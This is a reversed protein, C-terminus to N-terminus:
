FSLLPDYLPHDEVKYTNLQYEGANQPNLVINMILTALSDKDISGSILNSRLEEATDTNIRKKIEEKLSLTM